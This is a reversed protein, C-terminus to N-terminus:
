PDRTGLVPTGTVATRLFRTFYDRAAPVEYIAFHSAGAWQYVGATVNGDPTSLNGQAPDAITPVGALVFGLSDRVEPGVRPIGASAVLAEIARPPTYTDNTGETMGLNLPVTRTISERYYRRAFALPDAPELLPQIACALAPHDENVESCPVGLALAIACAVPQTGFNRDMITILGGGGAESLFAADLDPEVAVLLAGEQAGQSHGMYLLKRTDFHVGGAVATEPLDFGGAAAVRLLLMADSTTQRLVERGAVANTLVLNEADVPVPTRDGHLAAEFGIVAIGDAALAIAEGNSGLHTRDDGGSGHGYLVLPWGDPPPTGMPVSVNVHVPRMVGGIPKGDADFQIEGEGFNAFPAADGMFDLTDITGRYSTYETRLDDVGWGTVTPLDVAEVAERMADLEHAPDNTVFDSAVLVEARPIGAADLSDFLPGYEAVLRPDGESQKLAEFTPSPVIARGDVNTLGTRVVAAYHTGPRMQVGPIARVVLTNSARISTGDGYFTVAVPLRTGLEPSTPDIDILTVLSTEAASAEPAPLLSEDIPGDFRFYVASLVSFGAREHEVIDIAQALLGRRRPFGTLDPRGDADTRVMSPYPLDFFAGDPTDLTSPEFVVGVDGLLSPPVDSGCSTLVFGGLLTLLTFLCFRRM